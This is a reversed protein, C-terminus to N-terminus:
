SLVIDRAANIEFYRPYECYIICSVASTLAMGFIVELRVNRQKLLNLYQNTQFSPELEFTYLAYGKAIEDRGIDSGSDNQWKGTSHLMNRLVPIITQSGTSGYKLKLPNGGVPIGDVYLGISTVDYPQFFWPNQEYDGTTGTANVFGVVVLNPRLGQFINDYTFNTSGVPITMQKVM